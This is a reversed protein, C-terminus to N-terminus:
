ADPVRVTQRHSESGHGTSRLHFLDVRPWPAPWSAPRRAAWATAVMFLSGRPGIEHEQVQPHLSANGTSLDAVLFTDENHDRTRGLDTKGFVSVRVSDNAVPEPRSNPMSRISCAGTAAPRLDIARQAWTEGGALTCGRRLCVSRDRRLPRCTVVDTARCDGRRGGAERAAPDPAGVSAVARGAGRSAAAPHHDPHRIFLRFRGDHGM